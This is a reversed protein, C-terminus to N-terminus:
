RLWDFNVMLAHVASSSSTSFGFGEFVMVKLDVVVQDIVDQLTFNISVAAAGAWLRM